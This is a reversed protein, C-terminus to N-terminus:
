RFRLCGPRDSEHHKEKLTPGIYAGFRCIEKDRQDKLGADKGSLARIVIYEARAQEGLPNGVKAVVVGSRAATAPGCATPGRCLHSIGAAPHRMTQFRLCLNGTLRMVAAGSM